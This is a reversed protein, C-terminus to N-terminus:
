KGLHLDAIRARRRAISTGRGQRQPHYRPGDQVTKLVSYHGTRTDCDYELKQAQAAGGTLAIAAGRRGTNGQADDNGKQGPAAYVGVRDLCDGTFAPEWIQQRTLATAQFGSPSKKLIRV